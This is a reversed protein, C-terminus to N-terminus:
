ADTLRSDYHETQPGHPDFDEDIIRACTHMLWERGFIPALGWLADKLQRAIVREASAMLEARDPRNPDRLYEAAAWRDGELEVHERACALGPMSTVNTM